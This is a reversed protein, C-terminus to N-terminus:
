LHRGFVSIDGFDKTNEIYFENDPQIFCDKRSNIFL